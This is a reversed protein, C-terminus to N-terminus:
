THEESRLFQLREGRVQDSELSTVSMLTSELSMVPGSAPADWRVTRSSSCSQTTVTSWLRRPMMYTRVASTNTTTAPNSRGQHAQLERPRAQVDHRGLREVAEEGHMARGHHEQEADWDHEAEAVVEHGEHDTRAVEGKWAQVGEAEPDQEEAAEEEVEAHDPAVPEVTRPGRRGDPPEGVRGEGAAGESGAVGGVVPVEGDEHCADAGNSGRDVEHGGRQGHAPRAHGEATQGDEHPDHEGDRGHSQEDQRRQGGGLDHQEEVAVEAGVEEIRLRAAGSDHPLVEEPEETM